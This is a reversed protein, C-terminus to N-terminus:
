RAAEAANARPVAVLETRMELVLMGSEDSVSSQCVFEAARGTAAVRVTLVYGTDITLPAHYIFSQFTQVPLGDILAMAAGVEESALWVVPFSHPVARVRTTARRRQGLAAAFADVSRFDTRVGYRGVFIPLAGDPQSDVAM